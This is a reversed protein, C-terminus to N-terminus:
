HSEDGHYSPPDADTQSPSVARGRRPPDMREAMLELFETEFERDEFLQRIYGGLQAASAEQPSNASLLTEQGFPSEPSVIQAETQRILTSEVWDSDMGRSKEGEEHRNGQFLNEQRPNRGNRKLNAFNGREGNPHVTNHELQFPYIVMGPAEKIPPSSVQQKQRVRRLYLM